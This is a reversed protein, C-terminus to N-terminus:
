HLVHDAITTGSVIINQSVAPAPAAAVVNTGATGGNFPAVTLSPVSAIPAPVAAAAGAVAVPCAIPAPTCM